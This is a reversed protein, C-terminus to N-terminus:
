VPSTQLHAGPPTAHRELAAARIVDEYDAFLADFVAKWGCAAAHRLSGRKLAERSERDSVVRELQDALGAVNGAEFLEAHVHGCVERTQPVDAAIVALGSAMGELIVNGFTDTTSPFVLVDSSAYAASLAAGSLRGTFITGKPARARIEAELPGDGVIVPVINKKRDALRRLADVAVDVSKEKAIRGVYSVVVTDDDALWSRRLEDSRCGASFADADVGRPWVRLQEFGRSRLDDSIAATPVYTRRTRNHFWRLYRWGPGALAGLGYFKAYEGFSTHYSSAVPIGLRRAAKTGALGLGFPTAVHVLTPNWRRLSREVLASKPNALRLEPYLWFPVSSWREVAPSPASRPDTTAYVRAAYGRRDLETALRGLTRAVGNMQPAFTDTFIAVRLSPSAPASSSPM